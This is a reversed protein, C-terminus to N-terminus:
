FQSHHETVPGFPRHYDSTEDTEDADLSVEGVIPVSREQARRVLDLTHRGGPLVLLCDPRSDELMFDNRIAEARKGLTQWNPPYRVVHIRNERAWDEIISGLTAHGGHIMVTVPILSHFQTLEHRIFEVDNLHRGGCVLLRM